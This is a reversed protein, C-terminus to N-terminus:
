GNTMSINAGATFGAVRSRELMRAMRETKNASKAIRGCAAPAPSQSHSIRATVIYLDVGATQLRQCNAESYYGADAALNEPIQGNTNMSLEKIM